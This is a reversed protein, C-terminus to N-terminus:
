ENLRAKLVDEARKILAAKLSTFAKQFARSPTKGKTFHGVGRKDVYYWGGKRGDGNLAYEGTGFEEWIANELSNGVVTELKSEDVVYQWQGKTQGTDVRTNRKVQAELEGGAEYLYAISAENIAAKVKASNDTFEVAM